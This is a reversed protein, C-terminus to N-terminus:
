GPPFRHAATAASESKRAELQEEKRMTEVTRMVLKYQNPAVDGSGVCRQLAALLAEDTIPPPTHNFISLKSGPNDAKHLIAAQVAVELDHDWVPDNASHRSVHGRWSAHAFPSDILFLISCSRHEKALLLVTDKLKNVHYSFHDQRNRKKSAPKAPADGEFDEDGEMDVPPPDEAM